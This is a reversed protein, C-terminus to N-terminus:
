KSLATIAKYYESDQSFAYSSTHYKSPKRPNFYLLRTSLKKHNHTDYAGAIVNGDKCIDFYITVNDCCLSFGGYELWLFLKFENWDFSKDESHFYLTGSSNDTKLNCVFFDPHYRLVLTLRSERAQESHKKM